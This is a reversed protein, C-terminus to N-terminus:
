RKIESPINGSLSVNEGWAIIEVHCDPSESEFERQREYFDKVTTTDIFRYKSLTQIEDGNEDSFSGLPQSGLPNAGLSATARPAFRFDNESGKLVFERIDTAGKYDYLVRSTVETSESMYLETAIEDFSKKWFRSGYNEYGFSAKFKFVAGNDNRGEFLLYTENGTKSHVAVRTKGGYEILSISGGPIYYPPQWYQNILDYILLIGENPLLFYLNRQHYLGCVDDADYEELDDKIPDSLPLSQPGEINEVRGLTDVTPEFSFFAVANKIFVIGEQNQASQGTATKLKKIIFTEIAKDNETGFQSSVKYWDDEGASIAMEDESPAFGTPAADLTMEFGEGPVRLPTTYTCSTFDDSESIFIDRSTTSGYWVHNNLMSILDTKKGSIATPSSDRVTQIATDGATVGGTLPNPTVGTLSGGSEGGTYTYEVGDITIKKAGRTNDTLFRAEAWTGNATWRVIFTSGYTEDTLSDDDDLTITGAVVTKITYEGDNSTTGSVTIKDGAAFGATVFGSDSDVITNATANFSITAGSLFGKKTITNSTVSAIESIAGSWEHVTDTGDVFLLVDIQETKDWWPVFRIKQSKTLGTLINVWDDDYFVDLNGRADVRLTYKQGTNTKWYFSSTIGKNVTKATGVVKYRKPSVVKEGNVVLANKSGKVLYIGELNTIERNNIYGKCNM